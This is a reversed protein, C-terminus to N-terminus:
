PAAAELGGHAIQLDGKRPFDDVYGACVAFAGNAGHDIRDAARLSMAGAKERRRVEDREAFANAHVAFHNGLVGNSITQVRNAIEDGIPIRMRCKKFDGGRERHFM